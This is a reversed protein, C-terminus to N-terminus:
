HLPNNQLRQDFIAVHARTHRRALQMRLSDRPQCNHLWAIVVCSNDLLCAQEVAWACSESDGPRVWRVQRANFGWANLQQLVQRHSLHSPQGVLTIWGYRLKTPAQQSANLTHSLQQMELEASSDAPQDVAPYRQQSPRSWLGPHRHQKLAPNM